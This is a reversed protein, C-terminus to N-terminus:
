SVGTLCQISALAQAGIRPESGQRAFAHMGVPPPETKWITANPNHRLMFGALKLIMFQIMIDGCVKAENANDDIGNTYADCRILAHM